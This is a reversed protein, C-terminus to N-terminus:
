NMKSLKINFENEIYIQIEVAEASHMLETLNKEGSGGNTENMLTQALGVDSKDNEVVYDENEHL